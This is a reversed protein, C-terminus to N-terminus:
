KQLWDLMLQKILTQYRHGKKQAQKKFENLLDEPVKLSILKTPSNLLEGDFEQDDNIKVIIEHGLSNLFKWNKLPSNKTTALKFVEEGTLPISSTYGIQKMLKAFKIFQDLEKEIFISQSENTTSQLQANIKFRDFYNNLQTLEM